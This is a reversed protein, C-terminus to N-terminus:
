EESWLSELMELAAAMDSWLPAKATLSRDTVPHRFRLESSHLMQRTFLSDNKKPGYVTDGAVPVGVSALHVRIQHTRGTEIEVKLLAYKDGITKEITWNTAAFKGGGERVAMKKRNVPHRGIPAVIRGESKGPVGITLTHYIKRIQRNKFMEVLKRHVDGSKAVVMVGSTDKDLRHVIGPRYPDGVGAISQCRYLIGNVLTGDPNGNAPHVVLGPPKSLLLLHDDEFLVEFPVNQPVVSLEEEHIVTGHVTDGEQVKRGPKVHEGNLRLTGSKIAGTIQSRTLEPCRPVLFHDLRMGGHEVGVSFEISKSNGAQEALPEDIGM